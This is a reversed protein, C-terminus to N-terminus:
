TLHDFLGHFIVASLFSMGLFCKKGLQWPLEQLILLPGMKNFGCPKNIGHRNIEPVLFNQLM